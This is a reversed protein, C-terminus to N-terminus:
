GVKARTTKGAGHFEITGYANTPAIEIDEKSWKTLSNGQRSEKKSEHEEKVLGCYCSFAIEFVFCIFIGSINTIYVTFQQLSCHCDSSFNEKIPLM